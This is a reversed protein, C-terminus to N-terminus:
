ISHLVKEKISKTTFQNGDPYSIKIDITLSGSEDLDGDQIIYQVTGAAANLVTCEREFRRTKTKFIATADSIQSLDVINDSEDKITFILATGIDFQKM